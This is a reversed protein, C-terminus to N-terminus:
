NATTYTKTIIAPNGKEDTGLLNLTLSVSTVEKEGLSISIIRTKQKLLDESM